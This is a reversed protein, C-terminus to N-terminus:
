TPAVAPEHLADAKVALGLVVLSWGSFVLEIGVFLGIVWLSAEPWGQWISVGLLLTIAGNLLVWGRGKFSHTAAYLLRAAGGVTYAVALVLTLVAAARVPHEVMLMGVLVYLVGMLAHIFFGQWGRGLVAGIVHIAGGVVLLIGILLVTTLTALVSYAIAWLGALIIGTGLVVFWVWRSKLDRHGDPATPEQHTGM